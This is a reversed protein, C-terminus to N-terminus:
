VVLIPQFSRVRKGKVVKLHFPMSPTGDKRVQVTNIGDRVYVIGVPLDPGYLILLIELTPEEAETVPVAAASGGGGHQLLCSPDHADRTQRLRVIGSDGVKHLSVSCVASM